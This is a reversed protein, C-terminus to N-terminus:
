YVRTILAPLAANTGLTELDRAGDPLAAFSGDGIRRLLEVVRTEIAPLDLESLAAISTHIRFWREREISGKLECANGRWLYVSKTLLIASDGHGLADLAGTITAVEPSRLLQQLKRGREVRARAEVLYAQIAAMVATANKDAFDAATPARYVRSPLCESRQFRLGRHGACFGGGLPEVVGEDCALTSLVGRRGHLESAARALARSHAMVARLADKQSQAKTAAQDHQTALATKRQTRLKELGHQAQELAESRARQMTVPVPPNPVLCSAGVLHRSIAVDTASVRAQPESPEARSQQSSLDLALVQETRSM